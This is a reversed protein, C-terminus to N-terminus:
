SEPNEVDPWAIGLDAALAIAMRRCRVGWVTDIYSMTVLNELIVALREPTVPQPTFPGNSYFVGAAEALVPGGLRIWPPKVEVRRYTALCRTAFEASSPLQGYELKVIPLKDPLPLVGSHNNPLM